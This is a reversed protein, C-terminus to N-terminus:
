TWVDGAGEPSSKRTLVNKANACAFSWNEGAQVNKVAVGRVADDHHEVCAAGADVLLNSITKISAGTLCWTARMSTGECLLHLSQVRSKVSLKNAGM